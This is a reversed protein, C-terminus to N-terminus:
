SELVTAIIIDMAIWAERYERVTTQVM